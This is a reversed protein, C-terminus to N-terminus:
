PHARASLTVTGAHADVAAPLGLPLPENHFLGHGFPLGQVVPVGLESLHERLVDWVSVGQVSPGCDVFDGVIVAAVKAFAGSLVLASLMRDVRYAAEGVDELTLVAGDPIFLRGAAACAHLLTLNGGSLVGRARGSRWCRLRTFVRERRPAELAELWRQRAPHWARGLGGVNDAHMSAVGARSAEVHFVTSDSFGVLWKPAEQLASWDARHAIRLLGHGGRAAVIARTEHCQLARDLEALRRADSGAFFDHRACAEWDFRVRYRAGLWGIGRLVLARDFAGSPAIVQVLDGPELPAPCIL